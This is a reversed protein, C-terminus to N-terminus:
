KQVRWLQQRSACYAAVLSIGVLMGPEPVGQKPPVGNKDPDTHSNTPVPPFGPSMPIPPSTTQPVETIRAYLSLISSEGELTSIKDVISTGGDESFGMLAIRYDSGDVSFSRPTDSIKFGVSDANDEPNSSTNLTNGLTFDITFPESLSLPTSLDLDLSVQEVSTGLLVTGNFHRLDGIKFLSNLGIDEFPNTMFELVNAGTGFNDPDGWSLTSTGAGSFLPNTNSTGPLPQGWTGEATGSFTQAQTQGSLSIAIAACTSLTTAVLSKLKM